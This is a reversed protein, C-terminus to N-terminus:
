LDPLLEGKQGYLLVKSAMGYYEMSPFLLYLKPKRTFMCPVHNAHKVDETFDAAERHM